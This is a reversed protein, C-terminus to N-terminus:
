QVQQARQEALSPFLEQPTANLAKALKKIEDATPDILGTEIRSLKTENIKARRSIEFQTVRLEARRVRVRNEM